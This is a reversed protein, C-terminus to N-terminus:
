GNDNRRKIVREDGGSKLEYTLRLIEGCKRCGVEFWIERPFGGDLKDL